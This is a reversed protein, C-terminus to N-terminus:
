FVREREAGGEELVKVVKYLQKGLGRRIVDIDVGVEDRKEAIIHSLEHSIVGILQEKTAGQLATNLKLSAFGIYTKKIKHMLTICSIKGLIEENRKMVYFHGYRTSIYVQKLEPYYKEKVELVTKKLSM